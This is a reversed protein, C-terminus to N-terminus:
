DAKIILDSRTIDEQLNFFCHEDEGDYAIERLHTNLNYSVIFGLFWKEEKDVEFKHM